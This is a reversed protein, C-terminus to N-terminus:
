LGLAQTLLRTVQETGVKGPTGDFALPRTLTRFADGSAGEAAPQLLRLVALDRAFDGRTGLDLVLALPQDWFSRGARSGISGSGAMLVDAGQLRLEGINVSGDANRRADVVLEDFALNGLRRAINNLATIQNARESIQANGSIAGALGALGSVVNGARAFRNTDLNIARVVGQRGRLQLDAAASKIAASPEVGQGSIKGTITYIGDLPPPASPNLAKLLPGLTVDRGGLDATLAYSKSPALWRLAGSLDLSGGTGLMTQIKELGLAEPTLAISGKVNPFELGPAYVVRQLDLDIRGTYGAWLPGTPASAPAAPGKPASTPAPASDAALAAFAQLDPVHLVRSSFQAVVNQEGARPTLTANLELDSARAPAANNVVLPLKLTVEGSPTRTFDAQLDLSPLAGAVGAARLQEIRLRLSARVTAALTADLALAAEGAAIRTQGRLAPQDALKALNLKLGARVSLPEGTKQAASFDGTILDFGADAVRLSRVSASLGAPLKQVRIGDLSLAELSALQAYRLGGVRLAESSEIVFGDGEPRALFAATIPGSITLDPAYPKWWAAPLGLLRIAALESAPQVPSLKGSASAYSFSQRTEVALVPAAGSALTLDLANVRQESASGEVDFRAALNIAGLEPLGLRELADAFVTLRGSARVREAGSLTLEGAGDIQVTPLLFFRPLFPKLDTDALAIKWVGPFSAAGPAWRTDIELLTKTATALSARYLEADGERTASLTAKLNTPSALAGGEAVAQLTLALASLQGAADLTPALDITTALTGAAGADADIRLTIKGTGGTAVDGGSLAFRASLPQPGAVRVVGTIDLIQIRLNGPLKVAGFVGAFPKAPVPDKKPTKAAHAAVAVPDYDIVIDRAVVSRVDIRGRLLDFVPVEAAFSPSSLAIGPQAIKLGNVTAGSLGASVRTVEGQGALAKRVAFTQVAPTFLAAVLGVILVLPVIVLLLVIKRRLTM